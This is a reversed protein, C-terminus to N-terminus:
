NDCGFENNSGRQFWQKTSLFNRLEWLKCSNVIIKLLCRTSCFEAERVRSLLPTCWSWKRDSRWGNKRFDVEHERVTKVHERKDHWGLEISLFLRSLPSFPSPFACFRNYLYCHRVCELSLHHHHPSTAQDSERLNRHDGAERKSSLASHFLLSLRNNPSICLSSLCHCLLCNTKERRPRYWVGEGLVQFGSGAWHNVVFTSRKWHFEDILLDFILRSVAIM